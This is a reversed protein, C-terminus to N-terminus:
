NQAIYCLLILTAIRSQAISFAGTVTEAPTDCNPQWQTLHAPLHRAIRTVV